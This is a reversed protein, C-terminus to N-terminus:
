RAAPESHRLGSSRRLMELAVDEGNVTCYALIQGRRNYAAGLCDVSQTRVTRTLWAKAKAGCPVPSPGSASQVVAWQDLECTNINMLQVTRGHEPFM